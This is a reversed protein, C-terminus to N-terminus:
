DGHPKKEQIIRAGAQRILHFGILAALALACTNKFDASGAAHAHSGIAQAPDIKLWAYVENLLLGFALTCVAISVLYIVVSRKGLFKSLLVIGATNSAPGALLLVLAAGPSAGKLLLAAALPTTASACIYLPISILLVILLSTLGGGLTREIAEPPVAALIVGAALFGIVLWLSIDSLFDGLGYTAALKIKQSISKENTSPADRGAHDPEPHCESCHDEKQAPAAEADKEGFLVELVGATVGTVFAALPRFVAYIPGLLAYTVAISDVGTEPTTILFATTAGRTAGMRRLTLATPIVGCSCLPLPIGVLAGTIVPKYRGKGLYKAVREPQIFAYVVGGMLCGFLIYAAADQFITWAGRLTELGFAAVAHASPLSISDRTQATFIGLAVLLLGAILGENEEIMTWRMKSIRGGFILVIATMSVTTAAVVVASLLMVLKWSGAAALLYLPLIEACPSISLMGVLASILLADTASSFRGPEFHRHLHRGFLRGLILMLGTLILITAAVSELSHVKIKQVSQGAYAIAVGIAMTVSSHLFGAGFTVAALKARSWRRLNGVLVFPGWHNPILSHLISLLLAGFLVGADTLM